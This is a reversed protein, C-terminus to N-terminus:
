MLENADISLQGGARGYYAMQCPACTFPACCELCAAEPFKQDLKSVRVYCGMLPACLSAGLVAGLCVITGVCAGYGADVGKLSKYGGYGYVCPSCCIGYFYDQANLQKTACCKYESM